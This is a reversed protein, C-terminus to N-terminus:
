VYIFERDPISHQPWLKYLSVTKFELASPKSSPSAEQENSDISSYKKYNFSSLYKFKPWFLILFISFKYFHTFNVSNNKYSFWIALNSFKSNLKSKYVKHRWPLKISFIGM